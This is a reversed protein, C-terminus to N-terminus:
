RRLLMPPFPPDQPEQTEDDQARANRERRQHAIVDLVDDKHSIDRTPPPM